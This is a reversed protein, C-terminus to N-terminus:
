RVAEVQLPDGGNKARGERRAREEDLFKRVMGSLNVFERDLWEEQDKRIRISKTILEEEEGDRM